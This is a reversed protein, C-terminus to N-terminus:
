RAYHGSKAALFGFIGKPTPQSWFLALPSHINLGTDCCTTFYDSFTVMPNTYMFVFHAYM